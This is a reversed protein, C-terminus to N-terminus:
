TITAYGPFNTTADGTIGTWTDYFYGVWDCNPPALTDSVQTYAYNTGNAVPYSFTTVPSGCQASSDQSLFSYYQWEMTYPPTGGNWNATLTLNGNNPNTVIGVNPTPTHTNATLKVTPSNEVLSGQGATTDTVSLYYKFTGLTLPASFTISSSTKGSMLVSSGSTINYWQYSYTAGSSPGGVVTGTYTAPYGTDVAFVTPSMSIAFGNSTTAMSVVPVAQSYATVSGGDTAALCYYTVPVGSSPMAAYQMSTAGGIQSDSACNPSQGQYWQYTYAGYGGIVNATLTVTGGPAISGPSISNIAVEPDNYVVVNVQNSAATVAGQYASDATTLEFVYAGAPATALPSFTCTHSASGSCLIQTVSSLMGSLQNPMGAIMQYSYPPTGNIGNYLPTTFSQGADISYSVPTTPASILSPNVAINQSLLESFSGAGNLISAGVICNSTLASPKYSATVTNSNWTPTLTGPCFTGNAVFTNYTYPGGGSGKISLTFTSQKNDIYVSSLGSGGPGGGSQVPLKIQAIEQQSGSAYQVWLSGQFISGIGGSAIGPCQFEFTSVQGSQLIINTNIWGSPTSSSKACGIATITVTHGVEGMGATLLGSSYLLPQTCSFGEVVFCGTSGNAGFNFVGLSYLVGLAVAVAVIAWGYTTIFEIASQGEKRHRRGDMVIKRLM